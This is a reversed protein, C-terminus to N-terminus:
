FPIGDDAYQRPQQGEITSDYATKPENTSQGGRGGGNGDGLMQMKEGVVKLKSRKQGDAEWTEFKLRGDILVPSGKELYENAIEATRGWLTVDVFVPEDVWDDGKKIRENIAVGIDTVATNAPTYRLVIDRTINGAIIVKNFNPM